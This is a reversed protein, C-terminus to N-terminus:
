LFSSAEREDAPSSKAESRRRLPPMGEITSGPANVTPVPRASLRSGVGVLTKLGM